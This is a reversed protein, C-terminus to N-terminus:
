LALLVLLAQAPRCPRLRKSRAISLDHEDGSRIPHPAAAGRLNPVEAALARLRGTEVLKRRPVSNSRCLSLYHRIPPNYFKAPEGSGCDLRFQGCLRPNRDSAALSHVSISETASSATQHSSSETDFERIM